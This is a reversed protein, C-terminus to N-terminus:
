GGRKILSAPAAAGARGNPPVGASGGRAFPTQPCRQLRRPRAEADGARAFARAMGLLANMYGEPTAESLGYEMEFASQYAKAFDAYAAAMDMEANPPPPPPPPADEPRPADPQDPPPPAGHPKDPATSHPHDHSSASPTQAAAADPGREEWISSYNREGEFMLNRYMFVQRERPGHGHPDRLEKPPAYMMKGFHSEDYGAGFLYHMAAIDPMDLREYSIALSEHLVANSHPGEEPLLRELAAVVEEPHDLVMGTTAIVMMDPDDPYLEMIRRRTDLHSAGGADLKVLLADRSTPDKALVRDAYEAAYEPESRWMGNSSIPFPGGHLLHKAATLDDMGEVLIDIVEQPIRPGGALPVSSSGTLERLKEEARRIRDMSDSDMLSEASFGSEHLHAGDASASREAQSTRNQDNMGRSKPDGVSVGGESSHGGSEASPASDVPQEAARRAALFALGALLLVAGGLLVFRTKKNAHFRKM